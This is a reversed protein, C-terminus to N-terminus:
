SLAPEIVGEGSFAAPLSPNLMSKACIGEFLGQSWSGAMGTSRVAVLKM